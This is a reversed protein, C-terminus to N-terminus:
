KRNIFDPNNYENDPNACYVGSTDAIQDAVIGGIGPHNPTRPKTSTGFPFGGNDGSCPPQTVTTPLIVVYPSNNYRLLEYINLRAIPLSLGPPGFNNKEVTVQGQNYFLVVDAANRNTVDRFTPLIVLIRFGQLHVTTAYNPDVTMRANFESFAMTENVYLQSVLTNQTTNNIDANIFIIAPPLSM